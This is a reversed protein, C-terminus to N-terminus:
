SSHLSEKFFQHRFSDKYELISSIGWGILENPIWEKFGNTCSQWESRLRLWRALHIKLFVEDLMRSTGKKYLYLSIAHHVSSYYFSVNDYQISRERRVVSIYYNSRKITINGQFVEFLLSSSDM